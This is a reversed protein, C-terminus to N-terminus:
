STDLLIIGYTADLKKLVGMTFDFCPEELPTLPAANNHSYNNLLFFIKKTNITKVVM